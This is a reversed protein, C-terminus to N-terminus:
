EQKSNWQIAYGNIIELEFKKPLLDLLKKMQDGSATVDVYGDQNIDSLDIGPLICGLTNSHYNGKHILIESRGPVDLVWFCNGFTRSRHKIVQYKGVPICSVRRKNEKWPLELVPCDHTSFDEEDLVFMRGITQKTDDTMREILLRM